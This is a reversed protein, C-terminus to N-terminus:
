KQLFPEMKTIDEEYFSYTFENGSIDIGVPPVTIEYDKYLTENSVTLLEVRFGIKIAVEDRDIGLSDYAEKTSPQEDYSYNREDFIAIRKLSVIIHSMTSSTTPQELTLEYKSKENIVEINPDTLYNSYREMIYVGDIDGMKPTSLIRVNSVTYKKINYSADPDFTATSVYDTLIGFDM